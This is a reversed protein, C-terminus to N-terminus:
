LEGAFEELVFIDPPPKQVEKTKLDIVMCKQEAGSCLKGDAIIKAKLVWVTRDFRELFISGTVKAGFTIEKKYRIETSLVVPYFNNKILEDLDFFQRYLKTRLDELWKIYVINNVHGAIDIDYAGIHFEMEVRYPSLYAM